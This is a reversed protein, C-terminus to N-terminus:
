SRSSSGNESLSPTVWMMADSFVMLSSPPKAIRFRIRPLSWSGTGLSRVMISRSSNWRTGPRMGTPSTSSNSQPRHFESVGIGRHDSRDPLTIQEVCPQAGRGPMARQGQEMIKLRVADSVFEGVHHPEVDHALTVVRTEPDGLFACLQGGSVAVLM